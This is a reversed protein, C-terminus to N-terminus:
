AKQKAVKAKRRRSVLGLGAIGAVLLPLAGPLPVASVSGTGSIRIYDVYGASTEGQGTAFDDIFFNLTDSIALNFSDTFSIQPVGNVSGTVVGSTTRVLQLNVLQGSQFAAAPGTTVPYFNLRDFLTYLGSDLLLNSFDIIKRYGSLTDFSFGIEIDYAGDAALNLGGLSLGQNAGFTYGSAGLVGGNATLSPGGLSDALSGNLDYNHLLTANAPAAFAVAALAAMGLVTYKM